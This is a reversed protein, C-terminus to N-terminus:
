KGDGKEEDQSAWGEVGAHWAAILWTGRRGQRLRARTLSIEHCTELVKVLSRWAWMNCSWCFCTIIMILIDRHFWSDVVTMSDVRKRKTSPQHAAMVKGWGNCADCKRELLLLTLYIDACTMVLCSWCPGYAEGQDMSVDDELFDWGTHLGLKQKFPQFGHFSVEHVGKGHGWHSSPSASVNDVCRQICPYRQM